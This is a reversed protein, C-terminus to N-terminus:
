DCLRRRVAVYGVLGVCFAAWWAPESLALPWEPVALVVLGILLLCVAAEHKVRAGLASGTVGLPLFGALDGVVGRALYPHGCTLYASTSVAAAIGTTVREARTLAFRRTAWSAPTRTGAPATM